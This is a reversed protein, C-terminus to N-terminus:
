LKYMFIFIESHLEVTLRPRHIITTKKISQRHITSQRLTNLDNKFWHSQKLNQKVCVVVKQRKEM